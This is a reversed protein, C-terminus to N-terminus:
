YCASTVNYMYLCIWSKKDPPQLQTNKCYNYDVNQRQDVTKAYCICGHIFQFLLQQYMYMYGPWQQPHTAQSLRTHCCTSNIIVTFHIEEHTVKTDSLNYM